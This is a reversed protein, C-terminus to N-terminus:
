MAYVIIFTRLFGIFYTKLCLAYDDKLNKQLCTFCKIIVKLDGIGDKQLIFCDLKKTKM